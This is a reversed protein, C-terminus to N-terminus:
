RGKGDVRKAISDVWARVAAGGSPSSAETHGALDLSASRGAADMVEFVTAVSRPDRQLALAQRAADHASAAELDIEWRVRYQQRM